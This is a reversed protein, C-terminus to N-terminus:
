TIIGKEKLMKKIDPLTLAFEIHECETSDCLQCHLKKDIVYIDALRRIKLDFISIRNGMTNIRQFRYAPVHDLLFKHIIWVGLGSYTLRFGEGKVQVKIEPRELLEEFFIEWSRPVNVDLYQKKKEKEM